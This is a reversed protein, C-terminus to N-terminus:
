PIQQCNSASEALFARGCASENREILILDVVYKGIVNSDELTRYRNGLQDSEEALIDSDDDKVPLIDEFQVRADGDVTVGVNYVSRRRRNTESVM